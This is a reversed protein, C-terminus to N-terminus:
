NCAILKSSDLKLLIVQLNRLNGFRALLMKKRFTGTHQLCVNGVSLLIDVFTVIGGLSLLDDNVGYGRM